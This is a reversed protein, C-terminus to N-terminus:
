CICASTHRRGCKVCDLTHLNCAVALHPHYTPQKNDCHPCQATAWGRPFQCRPCQYADGLPTNCEHCTRQSLIEETALQTGVHTQLCHPCVYTVTDREQLVGEDFYYDRVVPILQGCFQCPQWSDKDVPEGRVYGDIDLQSEDGPRSPRRGHRRGVRDIATRYPISLAYLAAAGIPCFWLSIGTTWCIGGSLMLSGLIWLHSFVMEGGMTHGYDRVCDRWLLATAAALVVLGLGIAVYSVIM